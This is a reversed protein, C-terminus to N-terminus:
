KLLKRLECFGLVRYQPKVRAGPLNCGIENGQLRYHVLFSFRRLRCPRLGNTAIAFSWPRETIRDIAAWFENVFDDGLGPVKANYWDSASRIDTEVEPRFLLTWM